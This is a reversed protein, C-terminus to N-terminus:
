GADLHAPGERLWRINEIKESLLAVTPLDFLSKVPLDVDLVERLAAIIRTAILSHM